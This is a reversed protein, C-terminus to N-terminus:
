ELNSMTLIIDYKLDYGTHEINMKVTYLSEYYIFRMGNTINCLRVINGDKDAEAIDSDPLMYRNSDYVVFVGRVGGPDEVIRLNHVSNDKGILNLCNREGICPEARIVRKAIIDDYVVKTITNKFDVIQSKVLEMKLKDRYFVTAGIISLLIATILTFSVLVESITFGKNNLM